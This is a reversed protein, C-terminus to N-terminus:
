PPSGGAQNDDPFILKNHGQATIHNTQPCLPSLNSVELVIGNKSPTTGLLHSLLLAGVHCPRAM